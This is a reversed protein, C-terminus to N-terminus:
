VMAKPENAQDKSQYFDFYCHSTPSMVVDHGASAAERAGGIWDMVAANQALGGQLLESWGLLTKGHANIFKEMRQWALQPPPAPADALGSLTAIAAILTFLKM